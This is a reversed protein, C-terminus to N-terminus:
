GMGLGMGIGQAMLAACLLIIGIGTLEAHIIMRLNRAERASLEPAINARVISRWSLFRRTPVISLLGIIVFVVLKTIFWFNSFYFDAGKEFYYVRLLGFVLIAIASLGYVRDARIIRRAQETDVSGALLTLEVVLAAAMAFFAFFHGFSVLASYLM